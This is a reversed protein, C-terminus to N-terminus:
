SAGGFNESEDFADIDVFGALGSVGGLNGLVEFGEFEECGLM